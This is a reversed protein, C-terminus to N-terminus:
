EGRLDIVTVPGCGERACAVNAFAIAEALAAPPLPGSIEVSAIAGSDAVPNVERWLLLEAARERSEVLVLLRSPGASPVVVSESGGARPESPTALAEPPQEVRTVMVAFAGAGAMLVFFLVAQLWGEFRESPPLPLPAGQVQPLMACSHGATRWGRMRAIACFEKLSTDPVVYFARTGGGM